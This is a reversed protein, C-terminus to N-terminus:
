QVLSVELEVDDNILRDGLNEFFNGSRYTIEFKTRDFILSSSYNNGSPILTFKVPNSIGKITLTGKIEYVGNTLPVRENFMLIAERHNEVDFFDENKLHGELRQKGRGQIDDVTMSNMDVIFKGGVLDDGDFDLNAESFSLSGWHSANTIKKGTWKIKSKELDLSLQSILSQSLLLVTLLIFLNKM